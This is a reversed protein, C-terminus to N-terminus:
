KGETQDTNDKNEGGKPKEDNNPVEAKQECDNKMEEESHNVTTVWVSNSCQEMAKQYGRKFQVSSENDLVKAFDRQAKDLANSVINDVEAATYKQNQTDFTEAVRDAVEKVLMASDIDGNQKYKYASYYLSNMIVTREKNNFLAKALKKRIIKM